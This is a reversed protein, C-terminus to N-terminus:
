KWTWGSKVFAHDLLQFRENPHAVILRSDNIHINSHILYSQLPRVLFIAPDLQQIITTLKQQAQLSADTSTASRVTDIAQNLSTDQIGSINLGNSDTKSASFFPGLDQEAGLLVNLLVVGTTRERLARRMLEEKSVTEVTVKAGAISWQRRLIEAVHKLSPPDDVTTITFSLTTSASSKLQRVDGDTPVIWGASDLIARAENLNETSTADLFPYPSAIPAATNNLAQIIEARQVAKSLADRVVVSTFPPLSTNFFAITEQPLEISVHQTRSTETIVSPDEGDIFAIADVLSSKFADLAENASGFFQLVVTQVSPKTGVYQEFRELTYSHIAGGRDRSFSKVLYPGSGIPRLNADALRANSLPIDSWVHEPLIGVTLKSLITPDPATLQFVVTSDDPTEVKFNRYLPTLITRRDPNQISEMTFRVDASSVPVGDHFRADKRLHITLTKQDNSWASSEALDPVATLGDFRYLGSYILRVLDKDVDYQADLPNITSPEGVLAETFTGGVAPVRLLHKQIYFGTGLVASLLGIVAMVIIVREEIPNLLRFIYRFQRLAPVRKPTTVNLVLHHDHGIENHTHIEESAQPHWFFIRRLQRRLSVVFAQVNM